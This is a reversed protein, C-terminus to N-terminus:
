IFSTSFPFQSHCLCTSLFACFYHESSVLKAGLNWQLWFIVRLGGVQILPFFFDEKLMCCNLNSETM